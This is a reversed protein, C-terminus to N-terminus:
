KRHIETSVFSHILGLSVQGPRVTSLGSYRAPDPLRSSCDLIFDSHNEKIFMPVPIQNSVIGQNISILCFGNRYDISVLVLLFLMKLYHKINNRLWPVKKSERSGELCRGCYAGRPRVNIWVCFCLFFETGHVM